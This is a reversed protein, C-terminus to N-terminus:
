LLDLVRCSFGTRPKVVNLQQDDTEDVVKFYQLYKIIPRRLTFSIETLHPFLCGQSLVWSNKTNASSPHGPCPSKLPWLIM